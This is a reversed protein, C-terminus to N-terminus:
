RSPTKDGDGLFPVFRVGALEERTFSSPANGEAKRVWRELLQVDQTSGVPIVLHGGLALQELLPAPVRAPAATVVIVDFPAAEPWGVYGDGVRLRVREPGYGTRRLNAEGFAAVEPLYEISYVEKCLEALVAAQYGSGTGVELCRAEPTTGAVQSMLAVIYPQSITQGGVIPLPRDTYAVDQHRPLVFAHRPVRRMARLVRSDIVDRSEITERVLKEREDVREAFLASPEPAPTSVPTPRAETPAETSAPAARPSQSTSRDGLEQKGCGLALIILSPWVCRSKM